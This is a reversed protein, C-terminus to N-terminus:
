SKKRRACVFALALMGALLGFSSPEPIVVRMGDVRSWALTLNSSSTDAFSISNEGTGGKCYVDREVLEEKGDDSNTIWAKTLMAGGEVETYEVGWLTYAHARNESDYSSISLAYGSNLANVIEQSFRYADNNLGAVYIPSASTDYVNKLFGGEWLSFPYVGTGAKKDLELSLDMDTPISSDGLGNIYWNYANYPTGGEDKYVTRFVDWTSNMKYTETEYGNFADEAKNAASLKSENHKQWWTIVNSASAAWCMGMDAMYNASDTCTKDHDVWGGSSSVGPAWAQAAQSIVPLCCAALAPLLPLRTM